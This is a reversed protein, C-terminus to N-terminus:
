RSRLRAEIVSRRETEDMADVRRGKSLQRSPTSDISRTDDLESELRDIIDQFIRARRDNIDTDVEYNNRTHIQNVEYKALDKYKDRLRRALTARKKLISSPVRSLQNMLITDFADFEKKPLIKKAEKYNVPVESLYFNSEYETYCLKIMSPSQKSSFHNYIVIQKLKALQVYCCM